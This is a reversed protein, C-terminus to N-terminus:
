LVGKTAVNRRKMSGNMKWRERGTETFGKRSGFMKVWNDDGERGGQEKLKVRGKEQCIMANGDISNDAMERRWNQTKRLM